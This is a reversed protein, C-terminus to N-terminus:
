QGWGERALVFRVARRSSSFDKVVKWRRGRLEAVYWRSGLFAVRIKDPCPWPLPSTLLWLHRQLQRLPRLRNMERRFFALRLRRRLYNLM